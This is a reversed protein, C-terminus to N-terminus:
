RTPPSFKLISPNHLPDMGNHGHSPGRLLAERSSITGTAAAKKSPYEAELLTFTRQQLLKQRKALGVFRDAAEVVPGLVKKTADQLLSSSAM